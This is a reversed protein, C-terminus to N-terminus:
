CAIAPCFGERSRLRALISVSAHDIGSPHFFAALLAFCAPASAPTARSNLQSYLTGVPRCSASIHRCPFGPLTHSLLAPRGRACNAVLFCLLRAVDASVGVASRVPAPSLRCPRRTCSVRLQCPAGPLLM